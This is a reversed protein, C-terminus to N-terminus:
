GGETPTADEPATPAEPVPTPEPADGDDDADDDDDGDDSPDEPADVIDEQGLDEDTPIADTADVNPDMATSEGNPNTSGM